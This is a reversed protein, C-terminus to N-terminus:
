NKKKPAMLKIEMVFSFSNLKNETETRGFSDIHIQQVSNRVTGICCVFHRIHNDGNWRDYNVTYLFSFNFQWLNYFNVTIIWISVLTVPDFHQPRDMLATTIIIVLPNFMYFTYCINKFQQLCSMNLVRSFWGGYGNSVSAMIIWCIAASYLCRYVTVSVVATLVGTDRFAWSIHSFLM